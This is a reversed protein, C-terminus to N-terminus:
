VSGLGIRQFTVGQLSSLLRADGGQPKNSVTISSLDVNKPLKEAVQPLISPFDGEPDVTLNFQGDRSRFRLTITRPPSKQM